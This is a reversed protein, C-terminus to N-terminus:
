FPLEESCQGSPQSQASAADMHTKRLIPNIAKTFDNRRDENEFKIYPYYKKETGDTKCESPFGLWYNDHKFFVQCNRIVLGDINLNCFGKLCGKEYLKFNEIQM